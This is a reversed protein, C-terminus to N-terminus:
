ASPLAGHFSKSHCCGLDVGLEQQVPRFLVAREAEDGQAKLEKAHKM